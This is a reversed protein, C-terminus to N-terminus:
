YRCEELVHQTHRECEEDVGPRILGGGYRNTPIKVHFSSVPSISYYLITAYVALSSFEGYYTNETMKKTLTLTSNRDISYVTEKVTITAHKGNEDISPIIKKNCISFKDMFTEISLSLNENKTATYFICEKLLDLFIDWEKDDFRRCYYSSIISM